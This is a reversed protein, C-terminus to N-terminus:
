QNANESSQQSLDKKVTELVSPAKGPKRIKKMYVFAGAVLVAIIVIGIIMLMTSDMAPSTGPGAGPGATSTKCKLTSSDCGYQCSETTDWKTGDSSCQQLNSGSCRKTGATCVQTGAPPATVDELSETYAESTMNDLITSSKVGNVEYTVSIEQSPNIEPYLIVWSPDAEAVEVTAGPATVTVLSANGAFTKPVSEYLMFNKAKKQGTYRIKTTIKSKAGSVNFTKTTSLSASITASLRLLNERAQDSLMGKALVKEIATQLKTNNRLGVGPVFDFKKTRNQGPPLGGLGGSPGPTGGQDGGSPCDSTGAEGSDCIGDASKPNVTMSVTDSASDSNSSTAQLTVTKAGSAQSSSATISCSEAASQSEDISSISTCDATFDSTESAIDLSQATTEGSNVININVTFSGGKDVTSATTSADLTLSPPLVIDFTGSYEPQSTCDGGGSVTVQVNQATAKQSASTTTWSVTTAEGGITKSADEGSLACSSCYPFNIQATACSGTWGSAEVTFTRGLMVENDDAGSQTVTVSLASAETLMLLFVFATLFPLIFAKNGSM